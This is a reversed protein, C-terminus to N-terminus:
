ECASIGNQIAAHKVDRFSCVNVISLRVELFRTDLFHRSRPKPGDMEVGNHVNESEISNRPM